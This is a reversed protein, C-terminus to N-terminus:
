NHFTVMSMPETNTSIFCRHQFIKYQQYQFVNSKNTSNVQIFILSIYNELIEILKDWINHLPNIGGKLFIKLLARFNFNNNRKENKYEFM